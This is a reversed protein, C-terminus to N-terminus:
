LSMVQDVLVKVQAQHMFEGGAVALTQLELLELALQHQVQEVATLQLEPLQRLQAVAEALM